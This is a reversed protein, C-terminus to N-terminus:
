TTADEQIYKEVKKPWPLPHPFNKTGRRDGTSERKRGGSGISEGKRITSAM